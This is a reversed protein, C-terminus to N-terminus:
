AGLVQNLKSEFSKGDIRISKDPNIYSLHKGTTNNWDNERITTVGDIVCAICTKYSYWFLGTETKINYFNPSQTPHEIIPALMINRWKNLALEGIHNVM